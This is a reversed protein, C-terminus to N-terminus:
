PAPGEIHSAHPPCGGAPPSRGPSAQPPGQGHWACEGSRPSANNRGRRSESHRTPIGRGARFRESERRTFRGTQHCGRRSRRLRCALQAFAFAGQEEPRNRPPAGCAADRWPRSSRSSSRGPVRRNAGSLGCRLSRSGIPAAGPSACPTPSSSMARRACSCRRRISGVAPASSSTLPTGAHGSRCRSPGCGRGGILDRELLAIRPEHSLAPTGTPPRPRRSTRTSEHEGHVHYFHEARTYYPELDAYSLPWEPSIGDVHEIAQFDRERFRFLVAGYFKTNGGVYCHETRVPNSGGCRQYRATQYIPVSAKRTEGAACLM